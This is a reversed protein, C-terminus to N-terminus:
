PEDINNVKGDEYAAGAVYAGIIIGMLAVGGTILNSSVQTDFFFTAGGFIIMIFSLRYAGFILKRRFKWSPKSDPPTSSDLLFLADIAGVAFKKASRKVKQTDL